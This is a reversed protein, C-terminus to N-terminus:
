QKHYTSKHNQLSNRSRFTKHCETCAYSLGEIHTEIHRVIDTKDRKSSNCIKCRYGGDEKVLNEQIIEEAASNDNVAVTREPRLIRGVKNEVQGDFEFVEIDPAAVKPKTSKEDRGEHKINSTEDENDNLSYNTM